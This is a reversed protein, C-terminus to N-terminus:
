GGIVSVGVGDRHQEVASGGHVRQVVAALRRQCARNELGFGLDRRGEQPGTCVFVGARGARPFGRMHESLFRHEVARVTSVWLSTGTGRRPRYAIRALPVCGRDNLRRCDGANSNTAWVASPSWSPPLPRRTKLRPAFGSFTCM